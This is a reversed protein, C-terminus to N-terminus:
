GRRSARAWGFCSGWLGTTRVLVVRLDPLESIIRHAASVGGLTEVRHRMLRGAPYLLVNEGQKLAEICLDIAREVERASGSDLETMVPVPLTGLLAALGRIVPVDIQNKLALPRIGFKGHLHAILIVPDILAPHNPMFLIGPAARQGAIAAGEVRVRYRVALIRRALLGLLRAAWSAAGPKRRALALAM